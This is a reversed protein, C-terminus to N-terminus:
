SFHCWAFGHGPMLPAHKPEEFRDKENEM